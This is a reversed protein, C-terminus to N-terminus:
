TQSNVLLTTHCKILNFLQPKEKRQLHQYSWIQVQAEEVYSKGKIHFVQKCIDFGGSLLQNSKYKECKAPSHQTWFVGLRCNSSYAHLILLSLSFSLGVFDGFEKIKPM